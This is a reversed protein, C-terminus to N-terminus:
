TPLPLPPTPTPAHSRGALPSRTNIVGLTRGVVGHVHRGGSGGTVSPQWWPRRRHSNGCHCHRWQFLAAVIVENFSLQWWSRMSLSNGRHGWHFLAAVMADNFSLQRLSRISLSNGGTITNIIIDVKIAYSETLKFAWHASYHRPPHPPPPPPPYLSLWLLSFFLFLFFTLHFCLCFLLLLFHITCILDNWSCTIKWVDASRRWLTQNGSQKLTTPCELAQSYLHFFSQCGVKKEPTNKLLMQFGYRHNRHYAFPDHVDPFSNRCINRRRVRTANARCPCSKTIWESDRTNFHWVPRM